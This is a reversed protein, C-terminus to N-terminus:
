KATVMIQDEATFLGRNGAPTMDNKQWRFVQIPAMEAVAKTSAAVVVAEAWAGSGLVSIASGASGAIRGHELM